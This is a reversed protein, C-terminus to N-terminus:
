SGTAMAEQITSNPHQNHLMFEYLSIIKEKDKIMFNMKEIDEELLKLKSEESKYMKSPNEASIMEGTEAHIYNELLM